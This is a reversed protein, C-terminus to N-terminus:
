NKYIACESKAGLMWARVVPKGSDYAIAAKLERCRMSAGLTM